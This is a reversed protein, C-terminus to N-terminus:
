AVEANLKFSLKDEIVELTYGLISSL